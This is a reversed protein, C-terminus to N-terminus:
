ALELQVNPRGPKKRDETIDVVRVVCADGKAFSSLPKNVRSRHILGSVGPHLEVFVGLTDLVNSVIGAIVAGTCVGIDGLQDWMSPTALQKLEVQVQPVGNREGVNRVRGSVTQGVSLATGIRLVGTPGVDTSTVTAQVGDPLLLWARGLDDRVKDVVADVASGRPHALEVVALSLPERQVAPSSARLSVSVQVAGRHERIDVVTAEVAQGEGLVQSLSAGRTDVDRAAVSAQTGDPLTLWARGLGDNVRSVVAIVNSGRPYLELAEDVTLDPPPPLEVALFAARHLYDTTEGPRHPDNRDTRVHRSRAWFLWVDRLWERSPDAALLDAVAARSVPGRSLLYTTYTAVEEEPESEDVEPHDALSGDHDAASDDDEHRIVISPHRDAIERLQTLPRGSLSLKATERNLRLYLPTGVPPAAESGADEDVFFAAGHSLGVTEDRSLLEVPTYGSANSPGTVVAPYLPLQITGNKTTVDFRVATDNSISTLHQHLLELLTITYHGGIKRPIVTGTVVSGSRLRQLLGVYQRSLSLALQANQDQKDAATHAEGLVFRGKGDSRDLVVVEGRHDRLRLGVIVELHQGPELDPHEGPGFPHGLPRWDRALCVVPTRDAGIEYGVVEYWAGDEVASGDSIRVAPTSVDIGTTARERWAELVDVPAGDGRPIPNACDQPRGDQCADCANCVAEAAEVERHDVVARRLLDDTDAQPPEATPWSTDLEPSADIATATEDAPADPETVETAVLVADIGDVDAAEEEPLRSPLMTADVVSLPPSAHRAFRAQVRQGAPWSGITAGLVDKSPDAQGHRSAPELMRVADAHGSQEREAGSPLAWAEVTVLNSLFQVDMFRRRSLPIIRRPLATLQGADPLAPDDPEGGDNPDTQSPYYLGNGDRDEHELGAFARTIAGRARRLLAPEVFRKVEEKMAPSVRRADRATTEAAPASSCRRQDVVTAGLRTASGVAGMAAPGHDAREWGAVVQLVLEADDECATALPMTGSTRRLAGSTQGTRATSCLAVKAQCTRRTSCRLITVVEPVCALRDAYM